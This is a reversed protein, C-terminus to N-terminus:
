PTVADAPPAYWLSRPDSMDTLNYLPYQRDLMAGGDRTLPSWRLVAVGGSSRTFMADFPISVYIGKDFSGEGFQASSVNTRTAYAGMVVGNRFHKSIDLTAGKDKALYQGVSLNVQVGQWGTDWYATVHGTFARYGLMSFDQRFGRQWVENVDVGIAFRSDQPRYLWEGGVGAFMSELLGGYVSYFQNPGLRGVKTLQLFPITFRSTTLYERLYTRVRPLSSPATYTFKNYNNILGINADAGIWADRTLRLEGYANASIQYLLFGNPGGLTQQYGPGISLVFRKPSQEFTAPLMDISEGTLSPGQKVLPAEDVPTLL